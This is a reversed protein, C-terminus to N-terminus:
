EMSLATTAVLIRKSTSGKFAAIWDDKYQEWSLSHYIGILCSEKTRHEQPHYAAAGLKLMLNNVVGAVDKLTNCFIIMKPTEVGLSQVLKVIWDLQLLIEQKTTHIVSIRLNERNPSIYLKRHDAKIALSETIVKITNDDATGTLALLPVGPLCHCYNNLINPYLKYSINDPILVPQLLDESLSCCIKQYQFFLM